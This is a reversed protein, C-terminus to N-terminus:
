RARGRPDGSRREHGPPATGARNDIRVLVPFMTVNQETQAQPEIKLVTGEFPRNPFADVTVTAPQGVQIKGIDTEDVLTRVQVLGLDAMKLLVTGGGVDKTPSSIVQGREVDKEIITGTIPALVNTDDLQDKANEVAVKARVM